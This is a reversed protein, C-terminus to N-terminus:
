VPHEKAPFAGDLVSCLAPMDDREWEVFSNKAIAGLLYALDVGINDPEFSDTGDVVAEFVLRALL